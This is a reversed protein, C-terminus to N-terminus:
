WKCNLESPVSYSSASSPADPNPEFSVIYMSSTSVISRGEVAMLVSRGPVAMLAPVSYPNDLGDDRDLTRIVGVALPPILARPPPKKPDGIGPPVCPPVLRLGLM